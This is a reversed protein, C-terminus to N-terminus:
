CISGTTRPKGRMRLPLIWFRRGFRHGSVRQDQEISFNEGASEFALFVRQVFPRGSQEGHRSLCEAGSDCRPDGDFAAALLMAPSTYGGVGFVLDAGQQKLIGCRNGLSIPLTILAKLM